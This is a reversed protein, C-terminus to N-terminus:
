KASRGKNSLEPLVGTDLDLGMLELGLREVRFDLSLIITCTKGLKPYQVSNMMASVEKESFHVMVHEIPTKAAM